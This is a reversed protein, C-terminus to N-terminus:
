TLFSRDLHLGIGPVMTTRCEHESVRVILATIEGPVAEIRYLSYPVLQRSVLVYKTGFLPQQSRRAVYMYEREDIYRCALSHQHLRDLDNSENDPTNM